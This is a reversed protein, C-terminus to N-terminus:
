SRSFITESRYMAMALVLVVFILAFNALSAPIILWFNVTGKLMETFILSNSVVPILSTKLNLELGGGLTAFIPIFLVLMVGSAYTQSEKFSNAYSAGVFLIASILGAVPFLALVALTIAVPSILQVMALLDASNSLQVLVVASVWLSFLTLAGSCWSFLTVTLWKGIILQLLNAPSILLTELTGREKEGAVIDSSIATASSFMWIIILFPLLSGLLEGLNEQESAYDILTLEIPALFSETNEPAVGLAVLKQDVWHAEFQKIKAKIHKLAASNPGSGKHSITLKIGTETPSSALLLDLTGAAINISAEEMTSDALREFQADEALLNELAESFNDNQWAYQHVAQEKKTQTDYQLYGVGFIMLPTLLIPLVLTVLLHKQDRMVEQLEKAFVTFLIM